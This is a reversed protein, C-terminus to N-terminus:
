VVTTSSTKFDLDPGPQSQDTRTTPVSANPKTKCATASAAKGASSPQAVRALTREGCQHAVPYSSGVWGVCVRQVPGVPQQDDAIWQHQVATSPSTASRDHHDGGDPERGEHPLVQESSCVAARSAGEQKQLAGGSTRMFARGCPNNPVAGRPSRRIASAFRSSSSRPSFLDNPPRM